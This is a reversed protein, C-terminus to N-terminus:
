ENSEEQETLEKLATLENTFKGSLRDQIYIMVSQVGLNFAEQRADAHFASKGHQCYEKLDKLTTKGGKNLANAYASDLQKSETINKDLEDM